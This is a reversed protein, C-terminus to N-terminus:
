PTALAAAVALVANSMVFLPEVIPVAVNAVEAVVHVNVVTLPVDFDSEAPSTSAM